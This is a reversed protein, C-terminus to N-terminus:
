PIRRKTFRFALQSGWVLVRRRGQAFGVLSINIRSSSRTNLRRAVDKRHTFQIEFALIRQESLMNEILHSATKSTLIAAANKEFAQAAIGIGSGASITRAGRQVAARTALVRDRAVAAQGPGDKPPRIQACRANDL